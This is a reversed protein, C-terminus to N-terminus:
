GKYRNDVYANEQAEIYCKVNILEINEAEKFQQYKKSHISYAKGSYLLIQEGQMIVRLTEACKTKFKNTIIRM